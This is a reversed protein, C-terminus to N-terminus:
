QPASGATEASESAARAPTMPNAKILGRRRSETAIQVAIVRAAALVPVSLFVGVVGGIEEGALLGFLVLLPPVEVGDSMLYPNLVYDQFLRYVAIMGLLVLLHDYGSLGSVILCVAAATLPGIVPIFELVGALAALLLAYPVGAISFAISYVVLTAASLILLSRIYRGLLTDLGDVIGNWMPGHRGQAAWVLFESRMARADKIFLFALIPILIVFVSNGAVGLAAEGIQKALPLAASAGSAFQEQVFSGVRTRFPTLWEPLPLRSLIQPDRMLGPLKNALTTAQEAIPPGILFAGIVAVGLILTFVTATAAAYSFRRPTYRALRQVAPYVMYSFFVALLFIFLTKRIAFVILLCLAVLAVSWAYKAARRDFGLM